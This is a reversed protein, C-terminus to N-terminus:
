IMDFYSMYMEWDEVTLSHKGTKRHYAIRGRNYSVDNDITKPLVIGDVDFLEYYQSALRCSMLEGDPDAWSDESASAVYCHRPAILGILQHQDFPLFDEREIYSAYNQNFWYPFRTVIDKIKEGKNGRSLAAGSNGSCNSITLYFREDMASALLATKGGRSHGIIAVKTEDFEERTTLYNLVNSSAWAWASLVGWSNPKKDLKMEKFIGTKDGNLKDEVVSGASLLVVAFGRGILYEIPCFLEISKHNDILEEGKDQLPHVITLFTRLKRVKKNPLYVYFFMPHNKFKMEVKEIILKDLVNRKVISYKLPKNVEPSIFGYERELFLDLVKKRGETIWQNKSYQNKYINM